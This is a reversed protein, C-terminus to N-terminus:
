KRAAEQAIEGLIDVALQRYDDRETETQLTHWDKWTVDGDWDDEKMVNFRFLLFATRTVLDDAALARKYLMRLHHLREEAAQISLKLEDINEGM